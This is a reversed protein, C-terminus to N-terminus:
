ITRGSESGGQKQAPAAPLVVAFGRREPLPAKDWRVDVVDAYLGLLWGGCRAWGTRLNGAADRVAIRYVPQSRGSIWFFPGKLFWRYERWVLDLDNRRAWRDIMAASRNFSWVTSLVAGAVVVAMFIFGMVLMAPLAADGTSNSLYSGM